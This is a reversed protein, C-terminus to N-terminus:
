PIGLQKKIQDDTMNSVDGAGVGAEFQSLPAAGGSMILKKIQPESLGQSLYFRYRENAAKVKILANQAKAKFKAPGDGTFWTKGLNPMAMTLRAAEKESMQAGTIRKIYLNINEVSDQAFTSFNEIYKQDEPSLAGGKTFKSKLDILSAKAKGEATLYQGDFKSLINELRVIEDGTDIVRGQLDGKAKITLGGDGGEEYILNGQADYIRRKQAASAAQTVKKWVGTSDQQLWSQTREDWQMPGGTTVPKGRESAPRRLSQPKGMIDDIFDEWSDKGTKEYIGLLKDAGRQDGKAMLKAAEERINARVEDVAGSAHAQMLTERLDARTAIAGSDIQEILPQLLPKTVPIQKIINTFLAASKVPKLMLGKNYQAKVDQEAMATQREMIGGPNEQTGYLVQSQVNARKNADEDMAMRRKMTLAEIFSRGAQAGQALGEGFGM